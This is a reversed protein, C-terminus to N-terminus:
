EKKQGKRAAGLELIWCEESEESEDEEMLDIVTPAPRKPALRAELEALRLRLNTLESGMEVKEMDPDTQSGADVTTSLFYRALVSEEESSQGHPVENMSSHSSIESRDDIMAEDSLHVSGDESIESNESLDEAGAQEEASEIVELDSVVVEDEVQERVPRTAFDSLSTQRYVLKSPNWSSM